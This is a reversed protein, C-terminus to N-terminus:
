GELLVKFLQAGRGAAPALGHGGQQAGQTSLQIELAGGDAALVGHGAGEVFQVHGGGQHGKGHGQAARVANEGVLELGGAM